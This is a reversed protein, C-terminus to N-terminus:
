LSQGMVPGGTQEQAERQRDQECVYDEFQQMEEPTVEIRQLEPSALLAYVESVERCLRKLGTADMPKGMTQLNADFEVWYRNAAYDAKKRMNVALYADSSSAPYIFSGGASHKFRGGTVKEILRAAEMLKELGDLRDAPSPADELPRYSFSPSAGPGLYQDILKSIHLGATDATVRHPFYELEARMKREQQDTLPKRESMAYVNEKIGMAEFADSSVYAYSEFRTTDKPTGRGALSEPNKLAAMYVDKGQSILWQRFDMFGDDSMYANLCCSAAFIASTDAHDKYFRQINLFQAIDQPAYQQLKETTHRLIGDLDTPAVENYVEDIIRWFTDKDMSM